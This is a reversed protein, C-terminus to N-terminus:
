EHYLIAASNSPLSELFRGFDVEMSLPKRFSLPDQLMVQMGSESRCIEKSFRSIEKTEDSPLSPNPAQCQEMEETMNWCGNGTVLRSLTAINSTRDNLSSKYEVSM